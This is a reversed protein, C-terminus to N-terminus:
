PYFHFITVASEFAHSRRFSHTGSHNPVSKALKSKVGQSVDSKRNNKLNILSIQISSISLLIQM